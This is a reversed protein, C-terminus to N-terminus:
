RPLRFGYVPGDILGSTAIAEVEFARRIMAPDLSAEAPGDALMRGGSLVLVRSAFRAALTIDHLSAIVTIGLEKLLTLIELQHRIDLHNTPEDLILLQPEQALARAILVRQKEGGSLSSFLRDSLPLLDLHELAHRAEARDEESWSFGSKHPLRGAIVVDLVSFPFDSPAEQLVTAVKRCFDRPPITGIEIGDLTITGNSSRNARFLCRLLSSKGAGNPGVLALMGGPELDFSIGSIISKGRAPGFAPSWSLDRVCLSAGSAHCSMFGGRIVGDPLQRIRSVVRNKGCVAKEPPRPHRCTEQSV